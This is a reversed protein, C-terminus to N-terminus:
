LQEVADIDNVCGYLPKGTYADIGIRLVHYNSKDM